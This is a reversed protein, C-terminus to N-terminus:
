ATAAVPMGDKAVLALVPQASEELLPALSRLFADVISADWQVGRGERLISAAKTPSMGNRYPRDSTMADYSDAVAIV